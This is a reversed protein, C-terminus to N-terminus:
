PVFIITDSKLSERETKPFLATLVIKGHASLNVSAHMFSQLKNRNSLADFVFDEAMFGM